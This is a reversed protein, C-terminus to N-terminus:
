VCLRRHFFCPGCPIPFAAGGRGLERTGMKSVQKVGTVGWLLLFCVCVRRRVAILWFLCVSPCHSSAQTHHTSLVFSFLGIIRIRTREQCKTKTVAIPLLM